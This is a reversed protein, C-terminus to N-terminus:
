CGHLCHQYSWCNRGFRPRNAQLEAIISKTYMRPPTDAANHISVEAAHPKTSAFRVQEPITYLSLTSPSFSYLPTSRHLCIFSTIQSTASTYPGYLKNISNFLLLAGLHFPIHTLHLNSALLNTCPMRQPIEYVCITTRLM